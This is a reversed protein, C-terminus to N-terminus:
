SCLIFLCSHVSVTSTRDIIFTKNIHEPIHHKTM